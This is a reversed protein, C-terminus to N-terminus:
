PPTGIDWHDSNRVLVAVPSDDVLFAYTNDGSWIVRNFEFGKGRAITRAEAIHEQLHEDPCVAMVSQWMSAAKQQVQESIEIFALRNM